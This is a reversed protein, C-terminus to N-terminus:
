DNFSSPSGAREQTNLHAVHLGSIERNGNYYDFDQYTSLFYEIKDDLSDGLHSNEYRRREEDTMSQLEM